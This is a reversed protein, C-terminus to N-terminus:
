KGCEPCKGEPKNNFLIKCNSCQYSREEYGDCCANSLCENDDVSGCYGCMYVERFM